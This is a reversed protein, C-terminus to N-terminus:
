APAASIAIRDVAPNGASQGVRAVGCGRLECNGQFEADSQQRSRASSIRIQGAANCCLVIYMVFCCMVAPCIRACCLLNCCIVVCCM